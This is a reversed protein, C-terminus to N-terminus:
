ALLALAGAEATVRVPLPFGREGDVYTVIAPDGAIEVSRVRYMSCQAHEVHTGAYLRPKLRVLTTRSIPGAVVVDLLGDDAVASPTIRMGGGYTATNGVAVLVADLERVEGDLTLTYRRPRLRVLEAVIALDYRLPGRPWRMANARENVIADFGAALM